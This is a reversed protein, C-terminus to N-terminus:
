AEVLRYPALLVLDRDLLSVGGSVGPSTQSWSVSVQGAQERTAGMLSAAANAAVQQVVQVVGGADSFGHTLDVRIGGYRPACAGPLRVLGSRSWELESVDLDRGCWEFGRIESVSLSPLNVVNGGDYDLTLTMRASPAVHWGCYARVAQGAARVVAEVYPDSADVSGGTSAAFAEASLLDPLENEEM